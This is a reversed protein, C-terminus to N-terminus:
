ATKGQKAASCLCLLDLQNMTATVNMSLDWISSDTKHIIESTNAATSIQAVALYYLHKVVFRIFDQVFCGM